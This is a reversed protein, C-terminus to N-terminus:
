LIILTVRESECLKVSYIQPFASDCGISPLRSAPSMM